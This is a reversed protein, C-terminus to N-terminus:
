AAERRDIELERTSLLWPHRCNWGGGVTFVSGVPFQGNDMKDIQERTYSKNADTLHRCFDRELKDTPGQYDYRLVQQPLDKAIIDFARGSATRYYVQIGTDAVTRAQGIGMELRTTLTEVLSGFKLGAVGFLGRAIAAGATAEMASELAMVTNAQTANFLSLDRATFGLQPGWKQGIRDGLAEITEQLFPLTGRFEGVYANVLRRYGAKDMEQMFWKGSNRLVLMNGATSDIAGDTIGLAAQLRAIVRGQARLVIERLHNEFTSLLSDSYKNHAAIISNLDPM